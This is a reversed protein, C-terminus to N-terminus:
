ELRETPVNVSQDDGDVGVEAKFSPRDGAVFTIGREPAAPTVEDFIQGIAIVNEAVCILFIYTWM